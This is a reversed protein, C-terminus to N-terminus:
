FANNKMSALTVQLKEQTHTCSELKERELEVVAAPAKDIFQPNNLKQSLRTVEASLKLIEKELRAIEAKKDILGALPILLQTQEVFATASEPPTETDALFSITQIKAVAKIINEQSHILDRQTQTINKILVTVPVSPAINMEARITRIGIIFNQLWTFQEEINQHHLASNYVPYAAQMISETTLHLYPKIAQWIEETIFPIIPHLLRVTQELVCLLTHQTAYSLNIKSFEIYWDCVDQWVFEYLTHALMDFRYHTLHEHANQITTQLRSLIWQDALTYDNLAPTAQLQFQAVNMLVFRSANWLKNCFNRYGETRALDFRINRGNNAMACFTFRVADTGFAPIGNPFQQQTEKEIQKIMQPQMLGHTRKQLLAALDIGDILDLPDLVNGKSKSMKKGAADRILGTIYIDKFPIEQMFELSFMIMRAVWFFIIDFGTVLVSTPYFEKLHSSANPWGLSSFPWLASSFWTDLVDEDQTLTMDPSLKYRARADNEDMGVYFNGQADYWAPIRHGWWLQRSICWDELNEMWQFYTNEWSEPVFKIDAKKVADIAPASLKATDVYWQDTLYPEIVVGSRDGYPVTHTHTEIKELLNLATLDHIIKKRAAYRELGRYAKPTNENLHADPTFINILPCQHRAGVAYDNFDHAPTIKVCGSGFAPDVYTDAIIPIKRDTLPLQIMRGIFSQYRADDPHVAVATDGLLTEPRTTAVILYDNSDTLPYRIHWLSGQEEENLVELNSIATLLVPDWNVLRKGRYIIKKHFLEVFVKTVAQSLDADMTFRECSWDVSAGLRRIQRSITNGSEEKWRWVEKLFEERGLDHRTQGKANLQREVVMQTAIGAHDTGMQWLTRDGQMRHYRTLIDMLTYQFGHGMHLTGTVNPPPIVISFPKGKGQPKFYNKTEWTHYWTNELTKPDYNKQM